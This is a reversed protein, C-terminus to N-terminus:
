RGRATKGIAAGESPSFRVIAVYSPLRTHFCDREIAALYESHAFVAKFLHILLSASAGYIKLSAALVYSISQLHRFPAPGPLRIVNPKAVNQAFGWVDGQGAIRRGPEQERHGSRGDIIWAFSRRRECRGIKILELHPEEVFCPHTCEIHGSAFLGNKINRKDPILRRPTDDTAHGTSRRSVCAPRLWPCTVVCQQHRGM